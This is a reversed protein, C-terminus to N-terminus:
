DDCVDFLRKPDCFTLCSQAVLVEGEYDRSIVWLLNWVNWYIEYLM